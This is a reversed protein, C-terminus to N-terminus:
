AAGPLNIARRAAICTIFAAYSWGLQRASAPLGTNQDFQESLDGNLPTYAQVTRLYADGRAILGARYCFEAAGLTSFYYAGGSYYKDGAYRGLAPGRDAPRGWNIAYGAGFLEDLRALTALMRADHVSHTKATRAGHVAALIVAIDLAKTSNGDPRPARSRYFAEDELWYNDLKAVIVEAQTRCAQAIARDGREDLWSAGNELAAASVCLTYYHLGSEEEWIDFSAELSHRLTYGLDAQVLAAIDAAISEDFTAARTWRLLALARLAPGDHQPRAWKLIDLSGDPNVRTDSAVGDGHVAGLEHDPRLHQAYEPAVRDRRGPDAVIARGDLRQLALSFRVFDAVPILLGPLFTADAYLVRMADIVLASDRYWHFFYDPDPDYAGPIPSAVIAGKVPRITQNFGARTKITGCPSVGTLMATAAHRYQRGLWTDLTEM